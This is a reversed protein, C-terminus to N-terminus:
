GTISAKKHALTIASETTKRVIEREIKPDHLADIEQIDHGDGSAWAFRPPEHEYLPL